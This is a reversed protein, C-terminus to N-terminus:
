KSRKQMSQHWRVEILDYDRLLLTQNKCVFLFLFLLMEHIVQENWLVSALPTIDPPNLLLIMFM